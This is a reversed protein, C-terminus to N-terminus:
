PAVANFNQPRTFSYPEIEFPTSHTIDARLIALDISADAGILISDVKEGKQNTIEYSKCGLVVHSATLLYGDWDVYFGVGQIRLDLSTNAKLTRSVMLELPEGRLIQAEFDLGAQALTPTNVAFSILSVGGWFCTLRSKIFYRFGSLLNAFFM